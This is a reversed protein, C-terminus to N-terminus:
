FVISEMREVLQRARIKVSHNEHIFHYGQEAIQQRKIENKLYYAAKEKFNNEDIPVFHTGPIFGIDELEKFTPALLLTNCALVEFYKRVPYYYISPCTFFIKARNIEKAYYSGIFHQTEEQENFSKYGPHEHYVFNSNEKYTNRIKKRLPYIDNVAGMMLLHITKQKHYDRYIKTNIFHPFWEMKHQFEPYIEIFKDRAITFLYPIKNKSIFNRRHNTFRHVDNIFLGVPIDINALGKILPSFKKGIDNLLLIFDPRISLKKLISSIHGNKRWFTVHAIKVLEQELYYFNKNLLQSTDEAIFLIHIM